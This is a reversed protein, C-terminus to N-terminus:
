GLPRRRRRARRLLVVAFPAVVAMSAGGGCGSTSRVTIDPPDTRPVGYCEGTAAGAPYLACLGNEDDFDLTRKKTEGEPATAYMTADEVLPQNQPPHDLGLVHGVEHVLTNQLDHRVICGEDGDCTTFLFRADNMEIDADLIRGSARVYTVTTIALANVPHLWTDVLDDSGGRWTVLHINAPADAGESWDFGARREDTFGEVEVVFDSCAVETWTTAAVRVAEDLDAELLDAGDGRTVHMRVTRADWALSPGTDFARTCTYALAARPAASFALAVIMFARIM